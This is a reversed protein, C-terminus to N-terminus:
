LLIMFLTQFHKLRGTDYYAKQQYRISCNLSLVKAMIQSPLNFQRKELLFPVAKLITCIGMAKGIHSASEFADGQSLGLAELHLHLLVSHTNEAYIELADLTPFQVQM